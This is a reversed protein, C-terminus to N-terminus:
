MILRKIKKKWMPKFVDSIIDDIVISGCLKENDEIVPISLLDYKIALEIVNNINDMDKIKIVEENMIDKLKNNPSAIILDRLSVIGKLRENEDVIYIDYFMEDKPKLRRLVDITEEATINVNFSIFDKNMMSGATEEKYDMLKRIDKADKEEINILIKEVTEEDMDLLVDAAEDKDMNYIVEIKKPLPIDKLIQAQVEPEIEEFTNAALDEDLNEFVLKRYNINMDEIIDALDAPHLKSLKQYPVCLKLNNHLMELSEVNDWMILTDTPKRNFSKYLTYGLKELGIKRSLALFGTDVAIVKYEGAIQGIRLDNVKVLKKGNIDIIQKNLLNESLLYSYKRLIIDRCGRVKIIARGDDDYFDINKFEYNSTERGKKLKYAIARPYSDETTVYIDVLKGICDGYEDYIRKNLVKSLFFSQLKKM